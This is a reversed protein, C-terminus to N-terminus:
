EGEISKIFLEKGSIIDLDTSFCVNCKFRNEKVLFDNGCKICKMKVPVIEIFVDADNAITDRVTERFAYEFIEPVIQVLQGFIINVRTVKSLSERKATELVIASLDEAIKIEHM